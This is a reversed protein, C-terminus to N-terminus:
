KEVLESGFPVRLADRVYEDYITPTIGSLLLLLNKDLYSTLEEEVVEFPNIDLSAAKKFGLKDFCGEINNLDLKLNQLFGFHEDGEDSSPLHFLFVGQKPLKYKEICDQCLWSCTYYDDTIGIIYPVPNIEMGNDAKKKIHRCVKLPKNFPDPANDYRSM